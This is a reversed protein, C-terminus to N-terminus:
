SALSSDRLSDTSEHELELKTKDVSYHYGTGSLSDLSLIQGTQKTSLNKSKRDLACCYSRRAANIKIVIGLLASLQQRNHGLNSAVVVVVDMPWRGTHNMAYVMVM